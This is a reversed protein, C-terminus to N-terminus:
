GALQGSVTDGNVGDGTPGTTELIIVWREGVMRASMRTPLIPAGSSTAAAAAKKADSAAPKMVPSTISTM